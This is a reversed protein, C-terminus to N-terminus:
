GQGVQLDDGAFDADFNTWWVLGPYSAGMALVHTTVSGDEGKEM